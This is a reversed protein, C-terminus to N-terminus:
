TRATPPCSAASTTCAPCSSTSVMSPSVGIATAARAISLLAGELRVTVASVPLITDSPLDFSM